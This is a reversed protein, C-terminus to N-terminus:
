SQYINGIFNWTPEDAKQNNTIYGDSRYIKFFEANDNPYISIFPLFSNGDFPIKCGFINLEIWQHGVEPYYSHEGKVYPIGQVVDTRIGIFEFFAEVDRSAEVCCYDENIIVFTVRSLILICYVLTIMLAYFIIKTKKNKYEIIAM